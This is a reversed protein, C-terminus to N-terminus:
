RTNEGRLTGNDILLSQVDQPVAIEHRQGNLTASAEDSVERTLVLAGARVLRLAAILM